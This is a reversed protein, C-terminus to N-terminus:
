TLHELTDLVQDIAADGHPRSRYGCVAEERAAVPYTIPVAHVAADALRESTLRTQAEDDLM